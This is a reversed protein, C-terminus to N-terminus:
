LFNIDTVSVHDIVQLFHVFFFSNAHHVFLKGNLAFLAHDCFTKFGNQCQDLFHM